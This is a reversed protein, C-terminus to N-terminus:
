KRCGEQGCLWSKEKRSDANGMEKPLMLYIDKRCTKMSDQALSQKTNVFGVASTKWKSSKANVVQLVSSRIERPGDGTM